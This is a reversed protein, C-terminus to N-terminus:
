RRTCWPSRARGTRGRRGGAAPSPSAGPPSLGVVHPRCGNARSKQQQSAEGTHGTRLGQTRGLDGLHHLGDVVPLPVRAVVARERVKLLLLLVLRVGRSLG